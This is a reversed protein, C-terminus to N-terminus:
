KPHHHEPRRDRREFTIVPMPSVLEVTAGTDRLWPILDALRELGRIEAISEILESGGSLDIQEPENRPAAPRIHRFLTHHYDAPLEVEVRRHERLARKTEAVSEAGRWKMRVRGLDIGSEDM